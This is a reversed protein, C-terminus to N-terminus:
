GAQYAFVEAFLASFEAVAWITSDWFISLWSLFPASDPHGRMNQQNWDSGSNKKAESTLFIKAGGGVNDTEILSM